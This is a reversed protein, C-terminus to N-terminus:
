VGGDFGVGVGVGVGVGTGVGVGVGVFGVGVDSVLGVVGSDVGVGFGSAGVVGSVFLVVPSLLSSMGVENGFSAPVLVVPVVPPVVVPPVVVPPVPPPVVVPPVVVPPVNLGASAVRSAPPPTVGSSSGTTSGIGVSIGCSIPPHTTGSSSDCM